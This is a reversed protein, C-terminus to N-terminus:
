SDDGYFTVDDLWLEFDAQESWLSIRLLTTPDFAMPRAWEPQVLDSFPLAHESWVPSLELVAGFDSCREDNCTGGDVVPTTAVTGLNVRVIGSGRARLKLGLSASVDYVCNRGRAANLQAAVFAGWGRFGAALSYLVLSDPEDDVMTRPGVQEGSGDNSGYWSGHLGAARSLALDGDEFDDLLFDARPAALPGCEAPLTTEAEKPARPTSPSSTTDGCAGTACALLMSLAIHAREFV